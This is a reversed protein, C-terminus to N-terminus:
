PTKGADVTFSAAIEIGGRKCEVHGLINVNIHGDNSPTLEVSSLEAHELARKADEGLDLGRMLDNVNM